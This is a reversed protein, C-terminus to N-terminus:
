RRPTLGVLLEFMWEGLSQGREASAAEWSAAGAPADLARANVFEELTQSDAAADISWATVMSEPIPISLRSVPARRRGSGRGQRIQKAYADYRAAEMTTLNLARSREEVYRIVENRAVGLLHAARRLLRSAEVAIRLWLERPLGLDAAEADLRESVVRDLDVVLLRPVEGPRFPQSELTPLSALVAERGLQDGPLARLNPKMSNQM